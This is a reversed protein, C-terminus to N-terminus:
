EDKKRIKNMRQWGGASNPIGKRALKRANDNQAIEM